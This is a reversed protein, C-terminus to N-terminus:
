TFVRRERNTIADLMSFLHRHLFYEVQTCHVDVFNVRQQM